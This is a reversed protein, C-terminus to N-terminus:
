NGTRDAAVVVNNPQRGAGMHLPSPGFARRRYSFAISRLRRRAFEELHDLRQNAAALVDTTTKGLFRALDMVLFNGGPVNTADGGQLFGGFQYVLANLNQRQRNGGPAVDVSRNRQQPPCPM